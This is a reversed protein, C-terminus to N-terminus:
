VLRAIALLLVPLVVRMADLAYKIKTKSIDRSLCVVLLLMTLDDITLPRTALFVLAAIAALTAIMRVPKAPGLQQTAM